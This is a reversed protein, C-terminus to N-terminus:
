GQEAPIFDWLDLNPGHLIKKISKLVEFDQSTRLFQPPNYYISLM